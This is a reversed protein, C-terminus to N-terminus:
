KDDEELVEMPINHAALCEGCWPKLKKIHGTGLGRLVVCNQCERAAKRPTRHAEGRTGKLCVPCLRPELPRGCQRCQGAPYKSLLSM